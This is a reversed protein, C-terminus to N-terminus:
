CWSIGLNEHTKNADLASSLGQLQLRNTPAQGLDAELHERIHHDVEQVEFAAGINIM